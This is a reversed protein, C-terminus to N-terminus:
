SKPMGVTMGESIGEGSIEVRGGAFLGTKVPVFRSTSGEIVEVGFGGERLATLAAIPVTLVDKRESATFTVDVAVKDLDAAADGVSVLVELKTELGADRGEGPQIVTSVKTITGDVTKGGPLTVKVKDEVKALRQDGSDLQVTVVKATGTYTLVKQGPTSPQGAEAELTDVRIEAEAFIVRGLEVVGTEELGLDKQWKKVATATSESFKEDVTFGKYGLANLNKEFQEVDPGETGLSLPRFAPLSGFMLPVPKNDLKYLPEGRKVRAGSVPLWTITGPQRNVATTAPGYGLTGDADETERLTQRTVQANAPPLAATAQAPQKRTGGWGYAAVAAAAFAAVVVAIGIARRM